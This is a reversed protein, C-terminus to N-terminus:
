GFIMFTLAAILIIQKMDVVGAGITGNWKIMDAKFDMIRNNVHPIGWGVNVLFKHRCRHVKMSKCVQRM